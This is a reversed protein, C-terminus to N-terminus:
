ESDNPKEIMMKVIDRRSVIGVLVDNEDVVPLRKIQRALMIKAVQSVDEDEKISVVQETMIEGATVASFKRFSEQYEQMGHFYIIAGLLCFYDPPLPAIEKRMLDGESVIGRIQGAADVVPVGSIDKEVLLKALEAITTSSRVTVVDQTMIDRVKM